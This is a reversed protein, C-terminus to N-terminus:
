NLKEDTASKKGSKGVSVQLNQIKVWWWWAGWLQDDHVRWLKGRWNFRRLQRHLWLGWGNWRLGALRKLHSCLHIKEEEFSPIIVRYGAGSHSRLSITGESVRGNPVPPWLEWLDGSTWDLIQESHINPYENTDLNECIDCESGTDARLSLFTFVVCIRCIHWIDYMDSWWDKTLQFDNSSNVTVLFQSYSCCCSEPWYAHNLGYQLKSETNHQLYKRQCQEREKLGVKDIAVAADFAESGFLITFGVSFNVPHRGIGIEM